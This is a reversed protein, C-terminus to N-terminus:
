KGCRRVAAGAAAGMCGDGESGILLRCRLVLDCVHELWVEGVNWCYSLGM